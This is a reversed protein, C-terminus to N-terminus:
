SAVVVVLITTDDSVEVMDRYRVTYSRTRVPCPSPSTRRPLSPIRSRYGQHQSLTITTSPFESEDPESTTMSHPKKNGGNKNAAILGHLRPSSMLTSKAYGDVQTACRSQFCQSRFCWGQKSAQTPGLYPNAGNRGRFCSNRV